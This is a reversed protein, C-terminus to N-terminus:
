TSVHPRVLYGASYRDGSVAASVMPHTRGESCTLASIRSRVRGFSNGSVLPLPWGVVVLAVDAGSCAPFCPCSRNSVSV